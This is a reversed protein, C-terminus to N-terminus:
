GKLFKWGSMGMGEYVNMFQYVRCNIIEHTQTMQLLNFTFQFFDSLLKIQSKDNRLFKGGSICMSDYGSMFKQIGLTKNRSNSDNM